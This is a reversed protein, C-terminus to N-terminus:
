PRGFMLTPPLDAVIFIIASLGTFMLFMIIVWVLGAKRWRWLPYIFLPSIWFMQMDAALYWAESLATLPNAIYKEVQPVYNSIYLLHAWWYNRIIQSMKIVRNWDPGNGVYPFFSAM